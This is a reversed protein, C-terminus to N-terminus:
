FRGKTAWFWFFKVGIPIHYLLTSLRGYHKCMIAFREKLGPIINQKTIGGDLFRSLTMETNCVFDSNKLIRICWDFDASFRYKLDYHRCLVRRAIFSQHSVLMGMKFSKWTLKEPPTLRRNGIENGNIDTMVTDGYYVDCYPEYDFIEKIVNASAVEDGANIFWIYDGTAMDLGKNMADYLGKDPESIYKTVVNPYEKVIEMTNDTSAGDVIIYEINDYDLQAISEITRRLTSEANYTITIITVSSKFM